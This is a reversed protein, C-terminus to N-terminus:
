YILVIRHSFNLVSFKLFRFFLLNIWWCEPAVSVRKEPFLYSERFKLETSSCDQGFHKSIEDDDSFSTEYNDNSLLWFEPSVLLYDWIWATVFATELWSALSNCLFTWAMRSVILCNSQDLSNKHRLALVVSNVRNLIPRKLPQERIPPAESGLIQRMTCHNFKACNYM